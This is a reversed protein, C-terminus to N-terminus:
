VQLFALPFLRWGEHMAKAIRHGDLVFFQTKRHGETPMWCRLHSPLKLTVVQLCGVFDNLSEVIIWGWQLYFTDPWLMCALVGTAQAVLMSCCFDGWNNRNRRRRENDTIQRICFTEAAFFDTKPTLELTQRYRIYWPSCISLFNHYSCKNNKKEM